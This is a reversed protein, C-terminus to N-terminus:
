RMFAPGRVLDELWRLTATIRASSRLDGHTVSWIELDPAALRPLVREFRPDEAVFANSLLALGAGAACAAHLTTTTGTRVSVRARPALGRLWAQRRLRDFDREFLVLDHGDLDATTRAAARPWTPPPPTSGRRSSGWGASSWRGSARAFNRMAFDAEGRTLDLARPVARLEVSLGPHAALFAPLAPCVM